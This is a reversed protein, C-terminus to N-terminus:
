KDYLASTYGDQFGPYSWRCIISVEGDNNILINDPKVNGMKKGQKEYEKALDLM